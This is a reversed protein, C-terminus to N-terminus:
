GSLGDRTTRARSVPSPKAPVTTRLQRAGRTTAATQKPAASASDPATKWDRVSLGSPEGSTMPKM